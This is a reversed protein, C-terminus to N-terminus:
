PSGSQAPCRPTRDLAMWLVVISSDADGPPYDAPFLNLVRECNNEDTRVATMGGTIYRGQRWGLEGLEGFYGAGVEGSMFRPMTVCGVEFRSADTISAPYMCDEPIRSGEIVELNLSEPLLRPEPADAPAEPAPPAEPTDQAYAPAGLMMLAGLAFLTYKIM